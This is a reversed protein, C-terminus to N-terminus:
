EDPHGRSRSDRANAHCIRDARASDNQTTEQKYAALGDLSRQIAEIVSKAYGPEWKLTAVIIKKNDIEVDTSFFIKGDRTWGIRM